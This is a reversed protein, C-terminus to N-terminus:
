QSIKLRWHLVHMILPDFRLGMNLSKCRYHFNSSLTEQNVFLIRRISLLDLRPLPTYTIGIENILLSLALDEPLNKDLAEFNSVITEGVDRTFVIGAGSVFEFPTKGLFGAYLQHKPLVSLKRSLLPVNWYSSSNTRVFYSYDTNQLAWRIASVSTELMGGFGSHSKVILRNELRSPLLDLFIPNSDKCRPEDLYGLSPEASTGQSGDSEVLVFDDEKGLLKIWTPLCGYKYINRWPQRNEHAILFMIGAM